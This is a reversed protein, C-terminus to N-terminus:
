SEPQLHHLDDGNLIPDLLYLHLNIIALLLFCVEFFTAEVAAFTKCSLFADLVAFFNAAEARDYVPFLFCVPASNSSKADVTSLLEFYPSSVM